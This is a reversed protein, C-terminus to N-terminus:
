PRYPSRQRDPPPSPAPLPQPDPRPQLPVAPGPAGVQVAAHATRATADAPALGRGPQQPPPEPPARGWAPDEAQGRWLQAAQRDRDRPARIATGEAAEQLLAQGGQRRAPEPGPHRARHRAPRGGALPLAAQRPHPPVGSVTPSTRLLRKGTSTLM